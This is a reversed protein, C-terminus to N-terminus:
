ILHAEETLRRVTETLTRTPRGSMGCSLYPVDGENSMVGAIDLHAWSKVDVFEKLFAAATNSGASRAKKQTNRLDATNSCEMEKTYYKFVPMKWVRDGTCKGAQHLTTWLHDCTTYTGTAGGGLAVDMAGTLTAVNIVHSPKFQSAYCLADALVLRGEADTNDVEVTKGNMATFVDGPKTASGSPMNEALPVLVVLNIPLKLKAVADLTALVCAAGGMDGRMLAMGGSPKISIGGSDFTVGKGVLVLPTEESGKYHVELFVSKNVSGRGVSLFCNMKMKEAWTEDRLIVDVNPLDSFRGMVIEAFLCPAKYNSPTEMLGRAFNQSESYVIGTNWDQEEGSLNKNLKLLEIRVDDIKKSKYQDFEFLSLCAGEAAASPKACSDVLLHKFDYTKLSKAAAGVAIRVNEKEEDREEIPDYSIGRDGLGTVSICPYDEHLGFFTRSTGIEAKFNSINLLDILKNGIMKNLADGNSTFEHGNSKTKYCGLIVAPKNSLSRKQCFSTNIIRQIKSGNKLCFNAVKM